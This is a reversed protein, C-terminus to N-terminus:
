KKTCLNHIHIRIGNYVLNLMKAISKLFFIYLFHLINKKQFSVFSKESITSEVTGKAMPTNDSGAQFDTNEADKPKDDKFPM